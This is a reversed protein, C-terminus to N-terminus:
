MPVVGNVMIQSWGHWFPGYRREMADSNDRNYGFTMPKSRRDLSVSAALREKWRADRVGAVDDREIEAVALCSAKITDAHMTGGYTYPNADDMANPCLYYRFQIAYDMDPIPWFHLQM